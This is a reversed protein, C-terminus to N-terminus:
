LASFLASVGPACRSVDMSHLVSSILSCDACPWGSVSLAGSARLLSQRLHLVCRPKPSTWAQETPLLCLLDGSQERQQLLVSVTPLSGARTSRQVAAGHLTDGQGGWGQGKNLYHLSSALHTLHRLLPHLKIRSLLNSCWIVEM